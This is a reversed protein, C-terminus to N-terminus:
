LIVHLNRIEANKIRKQIAYGFPELYRGEVGLDFQENIEKAFACCVDEVIERKVKKGNEDNDATLLFELPSVLEGFKNLTRMAKFAWKYYPMHKKELLFAMACAGKVFECLALMAAGDEGHKLCRAYNYQGTQAMNVALSGIKKARVDEPMGKLIQNRIKSFEGLDDRFVEGNTAEAFFLSDTYLWDQWTRPAGDCGTYRRYFDDITYVGQASAGATSQRSASFGNKLAYEEKLKDYARLLKFGIKEEDERTLWMCFGVEFDHDCSVEDDFGFCESGHGALGVAIRNQYDGFEDAIMKIGVETYFKRAQEIGKM